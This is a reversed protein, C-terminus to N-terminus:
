IICILFVNSEGLKIKYKGNELIINESIKTGNVTIGGQQIKRKLESKSLSNNLTNIINIVDTTEFKEFYDDSIENIDQYFMNQSDEEAKQYMNEFDEPYGIQLVSKAIAQRSKKHDGDLNLDPLFIDKMQILIEDSMKICFQYISFPDKIFPPKGESKSIKKNNSTLLPTCLGFIEDNKTIKKLIHVGYSINGWQDQGGIQINCGYTNYLHLFDIMQLDPYMFESGSLPLNNRLRNDFTELHLKKNISINYSVSLYDSITMKNLWDKNNVQIIKDLHPKFIRHIDNFITQSYKSTDDEKLKKRAENKDTPDGIGGTFGGILLIGQFGNSLLELCLKIPILHGIHIGEGTPDIGLYFKGSKKNWFNEDSVIHFLKRNM